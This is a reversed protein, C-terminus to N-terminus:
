DKVILITVTRTFNTFNPPMVTNTGDNSAGTITITLTSGSVTVDFKVFQAPGSPSRTTLFNYAYVRCGTCDTPLTITTTVASLTVTNFYIIQFQSTDSAILCDSADATEADFGAKSLRIVKAGARDGTYLRRVM